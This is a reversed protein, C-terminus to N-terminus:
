KHQCNNFASKQIQISASPCGDYADLMGSVFPAPVAITGRNNDITVYALGEDNYDFVQPASLACAGCAICTDTDVMTYYQDDADAMDNVGTGKRKNTERHACKKYQVTSGKRTCNRVRTTINPVISM